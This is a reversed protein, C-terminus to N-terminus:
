FAEPLQELPPFAPRPPIISWSHTVAVPIVSHVTRACRELFALIIGPVNVIAVPVLDVSFVPAGPVVVDVTWISITRWEGSTVVMVLFVARILFGLSVMMVMMAVVVVVVLLALPSLLVM